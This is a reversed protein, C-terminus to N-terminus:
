SDAEESDDAFLASCYAVYRNYFSSLDLGTIDDSLSVEAKDLADSVLADANDSVWDDHYESADVPLRLMIHYGYSTEVIDSLGGVDLELAAERFGDVLSSTSDFTYGDPNSSLGGDESYENMLEDFLSEMDDSAKLQSLLDEAQALMADNYEDATQTVNGDDDTVDESVTKLLIHKVSFVGNDTVYQELDATTPEGVLQEALANFLYYNSNIYNFADESGYSQILSQYSDEGYNSVYDDIDAQLQAQQEDSITIGNEDCLQRLVAYYAAASQADSLVSAAISEDTLDATM